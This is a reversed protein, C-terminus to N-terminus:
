SFIQNHQRQAKKWINEINDISKIYMSIIRPTRKGIDKTCIRYAQLIHSARGHTWNQSSFDSNHNADIIESYSSTLPARHVCNRERSVTPVWTCIYRNQWIIIRHNQRGKIERQPKRIVSKKKKETHQNRNESVIMHAHLSSYNKGRSSDVDCRGYNQTKEM